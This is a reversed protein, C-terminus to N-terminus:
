LWLRRRVRVLGSEASTGLIAGPQGNPEVGMVGRGELTAGGGAQDSYGLIWARVTAQSYFRDTGRKVWESVEPDLYPIVRLNDTGTEILDRGYSTDQIDAEVQVGTRTRRLRASGLSQSFNGLFIPADDEMTLGDPDVSATRCDTACRCRTRAYKWLGSFGGIRRRVEVGSGPYSPHDVLALGPLDASEVVRIGEADRSEQKAVFEVSWGRFRGARVGDLAVTAIETRPLHAAVILADARDEFTVDEGYALVRGTRHGLTPALDPSVTFAGPEFRERHSPSVDGYRVAPGTLTRGDARLEVGQRREM